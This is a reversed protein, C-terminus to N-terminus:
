SGIAARYDDDSVEDLWNTQGLSIATHVLFSDGVAGHWHEEGPHFFIVDGATVFDGDGDRTQVRGRGETVLLVQGNDHTHWYTRGGPGFFVTNVLVGPVGSLVSDGWVIGTFSVGDTRDESAANAERGRNIKV